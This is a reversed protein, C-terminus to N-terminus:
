PEILYGKFIYRGVNVFTENPFVFLEEWQPTGSTMNMRLLQRSNKFAETKLSMCFLESRLRYLFGIMIPKDLDFLPMRKWSGTALDLSQATNIIQYKDKGGICLITSKNLLGCVPNYVAVLLSDLQHWSSDGYQLIEVIGMADIPPEDYGGIVVLTTQNVVVTAHARRGHQLTPGLNWQHTIPDLIEMVGHNDGYKRKGGIVIPLEGM